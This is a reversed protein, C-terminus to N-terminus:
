KCGFSSAPTNMYDEWSVLGMESAVQGTEVQDLTVLQGYWKKASNKMGIFIESSYQRSGDDSVVSVGPQDSVFLEFERLSSPISVAYWTAADFYSKNRKPPEDLFVGIDTMGVNCRVGAFYHGDRNVVYSASWGGMPVGPRHEACGAVVLGIVM